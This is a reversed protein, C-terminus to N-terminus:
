CVSFETPSQPRELKLRNAAAIESWKPDDTPIKQKKKTSKGSAEEVVAFSVTLRDPLPM